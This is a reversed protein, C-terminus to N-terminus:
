LISSNKNKRRQKKDTIIKKHLIDLKRLKAELSEEQLTDSREQRSFDDIIDDIDIEKQAYERNNTKTQLIPNMYQTNKDKTRSGINLAPDRVNYSTNTQSSINLTPDRVNHSTNTQSSINLAPDRVNSKNQQTPFSSSARVPLTLPIPMQNQNNHPTNNYMSPHQLENVDKKRSNLLGLRVPDYQSQSIMLQNNYSVLKNLVTSRYEPTINQLLMNVLEHYSHNANDYYVNYDM